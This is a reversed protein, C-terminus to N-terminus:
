NYPPYAVGNNNNNLESRLYEYSDRGINMNVIHSLAQMPTIPNFSKEIKELFSRHDDSTSEEIKSIISSAATNGSKKLKTKVAFLLEELPADILQGAKRKKSKESSEKFM